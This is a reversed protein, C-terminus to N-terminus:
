DFDKTMVVWAPDYGKDRLFTRTWGARGALTMRTCGERKAWQEVIPLMRELEALEGGALFLHCTKIRPTRLIQTVIAARDTDWLQAHGTELYREVDSFTHTGRTYELAPELFRRARQLREPTIM